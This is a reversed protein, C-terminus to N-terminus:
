QVPMPNRDLGFATALKRYCIDARAPTYKKATETFSNYLSWMTPKAFEEHRPKRFEQFVSLIDCSPIAKIEAAKVIMVRAQNQSLATSKMEVVRAELVQYQFALNDFAAPILESIDIGSTHKRHITTGGGFCLNDCVLVSLGAVLGLALSKDHSNRIGVARTYEPHGDPHFRIVGFLKTGDKSLGYEESAIRYRRNWAERGVLAAVEYHPVPRWTPTSVPTPVALLEEKKVKMSNSSLMLSM